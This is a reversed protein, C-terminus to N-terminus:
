LGISSSISSESPLVGSLISSAADTVASSAFDLANTLTAAALSAGASEGLALANLVEDEAAATYPYSVAKVAALDLVYNSLIPRDASQEIRIPGRPVVVWFENRFFDYFELTYPDGSQNQIIAQNLSTYTDIINQLRTCAGQGTWLFGDASHFQWGTTGVITFFPPAIGFEDVKRQVGQNKASGQVDYLAVLPSSSKRVLQPTLPFVFNYGPLVSLSGNPKRISLQYLALTTNTAGKTYFYQM